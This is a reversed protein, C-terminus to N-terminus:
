KRQSRMEASVIDSVEGYAEEVIQFWELQELTLNDVIGPDWGKVKSYWQYLLMRPPM